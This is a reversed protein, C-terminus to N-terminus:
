CEGVVRWECWETECELGYCCVHCQYEILQGDQCIPDDMSKWYCYDLSAEAQLPGKAFLAAITAGAATALLRRRDITRKLHRMNM